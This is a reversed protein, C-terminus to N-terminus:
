SPQLEALGYADNPGWRVTTPRLTYPHGNVELQAGPTIAAIAAASDVYYRPKLPREQLARSTPDLFRYPYNSPVYDVFGDVLGAFRVDEIPITYIPVIMVEGPKLRQDALQQAAANVAEDGSASTKLEVFVPILLAAVLVWGALPVRIRNGKILWLAPLIAVTAAPGYYNPYNLRAAASIDLALATLALLAPWWIRRRAGIVAAAVALAVLLTASWVPYTFLTSLDFNSFLTINENVQGGKLTDWTTVVSQIGDDLILTVPLAYGLTFAVVVLATFVSFVRRVIGIRFRDAVFGAVLFFVLVLLWNLAAHRQPDNTFVPLRERNFLYCIYTWVAALPVLWYVHRRLWRLTNGAFPRGWGDAPPRWVAAVILPVAMFIAPTKFTLALGLLAAAWAYAAARRQTFGVAILVAIAACLASLPSDPRLGFAHDVLAPACLYLLGGALGWTWHGLFRGVAWYVLLAGAIWVLVAWTRYLSRASDLDLFKRDVFQQRNDVKGRAKDLLYQGGFGVALADQTPLGPHDLFYTHNGILINLSSGLYQGDPDSLIWWPAGIPQLFALLLAVAATAVGGLVWGSLRTRM